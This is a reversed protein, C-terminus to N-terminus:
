KAVPLTAPASSGNKNKLGEAFEGIKEGAEQGFEKGDATIKKTKVDVSIHSNGDSSASVQFSYWGRYYGVTVFVVIILGILALINRM